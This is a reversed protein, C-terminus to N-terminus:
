NRSAHWRFAVVCIAAIFVVAILEKAVGMYNPFGAAAWAVLCVLLVVAEIIGGVTDFAKLSM